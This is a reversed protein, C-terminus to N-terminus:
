PWNAGLRLVMAFMVCGSVDKFRSSAAPSLVFPSMGATKDNGECCLDLVRNPEVPALSLLAMTKLVIECYLM